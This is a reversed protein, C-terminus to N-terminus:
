HSEVLAIARALAVAEGRAATDVPVDPAVGDAVPTGAPTFLEGTELRLAGGDKGLPFMTTVWGVGATRTGVITAGRHERLAAATLEAGAATGHDVLVVIRRGPLRDHARSSRLRRTGDTGVADGPDAPRVGRERILALAQEPGVFLAITGIAGGLMGGSNDRVDLLLGANEVAAVDALAHEVHAATDRDFHKVRVYAATPGRWEVHPSPLQVRERVFTYTRSAGEPPELTLRVTSGEPGRLRRVVDPLDLGDIGADDIAMVRDGPAVAARAAPSGDLPEVVFIGGDRRTLELGVGGTTASAPGEPLPTLFSSRPGLVEVMHTVAAMQYAMVDDRAPPPECARLTPRADALRQMWTSVDAPTAPIGDTREACDRALGEVTAGMLATRDVPRVYEREITELASAVLPLRTQGREDLWGHLVSGALIGSSVGPSVPVCGAVAVLAVAVIARGSERAVTV